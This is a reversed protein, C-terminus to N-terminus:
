QSLPNDNEMRGDFIVKGNADYYKGFGHMLGNEFDGEYYGGDAETFRGKGHQKGKLFQGEYKNGSKFLYTGYGSFNGNSMGGKYYDGKTFIAEGDGEIKGNVFNGKYINGSKTYSAVGYGNPKQNLLTGEFNYEDGNDDILLNKNNSMKLEESANFLEKLIGSNVSNCSWVSNAKFNGNSRKLLENNAIADAQEKTEALGWGYATGVNGEVTRYAACGTGSYSLVVNCNGGKINCEDMAKKEAELLTAYDYSWGYYFGNQKDIALAGFKSVETHIIIPSKKLSQKTQGQFLVPTIIVFYFKIFKRM